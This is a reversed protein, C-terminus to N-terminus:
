VLISQICKKQMFHQITLEKNIGQDKGLVLINNARNTAHTSSSMDAGFIIANQGFSCTPHSFTGKSDFGTGYVIYQYKDINSSKTIKLAGFSCNQLTFDFNNLNSDLDQFIYINLSNKNFVLGNQEALCSGDVKVFIKEDIYELKNNITPSKLADTFLGKSKWSSINNTKNVKKFCRNIPQFVLYDQIGDDGFYNKGRFYAANFNSLKKLENEILM